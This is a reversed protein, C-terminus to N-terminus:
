HTSQESIPLFIFSVIIGVRVNGGICIKEEQQGSTNSHCVSALLSSCHRFGHPFGFVSYALGCFEYPIGRGRYLRNNDGLSTILLLQATQMFGVSVFFTMIWWAMNVGM